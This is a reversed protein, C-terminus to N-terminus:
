RVHVHPQLVQDQVARVDGAEEGFQGDHCGGVKGGRAIRNVGSDGHDTM